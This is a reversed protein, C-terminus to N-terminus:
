DWGYTITVPTGIRLTKMVNYREPSIEDKNFVMETDWVYCMFRLMDIVPMTEILSWLQPNIRECHLKMDNVAEYAIKDHTYLAKLAYTQQKSAVCNTLESLTV